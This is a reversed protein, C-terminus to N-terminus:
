NRYIIETIKLETFQKPQDVTRYRGWKTIYLLASNRLNNKTCFFANVLVQPYLLKIQPHLNMEPFYQQSMKLTFSKPVLREASVNINLPLFKFMFVFSGPM